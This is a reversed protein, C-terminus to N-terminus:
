EVLKLRMENTQTFGIAEYIPRGADSAHLVATSVDHARCYAVAEEVLRRALGQGRHEPETFVNLIYGRRVGATLPSPIWDHLWMGAGAVVQGEASVALWGLYEGTVLKESVWGLFPAAWAEIKAAEVGMALFMHNRQHVITAADTLTATRFTYTANM